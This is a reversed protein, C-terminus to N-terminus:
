RKPSGKRAAANLRDEFEPDDPHGLAEFEPDGPYGLPQPQGRIIQPEGAQDDFAAVSLRDGGAAILWGVIMRATDGSNVRLFSVRAGATEGSGSDHAVVAVVAPGQGMLHGAPKEKKAM